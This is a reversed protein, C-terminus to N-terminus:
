SKINISPNRDVNESHPPQGKSEIEQIRRNFFIYVSIVLLLAILIILALLTNKRIQM